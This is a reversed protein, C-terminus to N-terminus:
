STVVIDEPQKVFREQPELLVLQIFEVIEKQIQLVPCALTQEVDRERKSKFKDVIRKTICEQPITQVWRTASVARGLGPRSGMTIGPTAGMNVEVRHRLRVELGKDTKKSAIFVHFLPSLM